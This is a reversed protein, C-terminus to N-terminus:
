EMSYDELVDELHTNHVKVIFRKREKRKPLVANNRKPTLDKATSIGHKQLYEEIKKEDLHEISALRWLKIYEEDVVPFDELETPDNYFYSHDKRKNVQVVIDIVQQGLNKVLQEPSIVCDTLVSLLIGGRADFHWKKLEALLTTRNKIKLSPQYVCKGDEIHLKPNDLLAQELWIITKRSVDIIQMEELCERITLPWSKQELHRKRMYDVMKAMISFNAATYQTDVKAITTESDNAITKVDTTNPRRRKKQRRREDLSSDIAKSKSEQNSGTSTNQISVGMSRIANKMFEQRQKLLTPDM